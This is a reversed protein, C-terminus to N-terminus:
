GLPEKPENLYYFCQRRGFNRKLLSSYNPLCTCLANEINRHNNPSAHISSDKESNPTEGKLGHQNDNMGSDHQVFHWTPNELFRGNTRGKRRPGHM